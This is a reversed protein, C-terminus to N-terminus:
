ESTRSESYERKKYAALIILLQLMKRLAAKFITQECESLLIAWSLSNIKFEKDCNM